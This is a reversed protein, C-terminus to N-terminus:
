ATAEQKDGNNTTTQQKAQKTNAQKTEAQPEAAKAEAEKAERGRRKILEDLTVTAGTEDNVVAALLRRREVERYLELLEAATAQDDTARTLFDAATPAPKGDGLWARVEDAFDLGPKPVLKGSLPRARSKSITLTNELDLDGVIDFEYEIGDRQEPKLGVKRPASKGRNDTEVVYETKTRMAVIVHGPYSLLADIMRREMPRAEKWGAFNNGGGSRKAAADVQELMGGEGSWFHSMSDVIVVDYGANGAAALADVLVQPEFSTLQLTNFTFEDAYKSATGRETDILAVRDGLGVALTLATYTKGSGPPGALAIRAKSQEKTAPTFTLQM